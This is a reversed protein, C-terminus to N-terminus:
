RMSNNEKGPKGKLAYSFFDIGHALLIIKLRQPSNQRQKALQGVQLGRDQM